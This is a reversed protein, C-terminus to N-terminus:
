KLYYSNKTSVETKQKTKEEESLKQQKINKPALKPQKILVVRKTKIIFYITLKIISAPMDAFRKAHTQACM